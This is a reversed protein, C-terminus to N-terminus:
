RYGDHEGRIDQHSACRDDPRTLWQVRPVPHEEFHIAAAGIDALLSKADDREGQDAEAIALGVDSWQQSAKHAGWQELSQRYILALVRAQQTNFLHMFATAIEEPSLDVEITREITM